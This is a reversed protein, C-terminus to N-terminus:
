WPTYRLGLLSLVHVSAAALGVWAFPRFFDIYQPASPELRTPKMADIRQFVEHLAAPDGATFAAGGTLSAVTYTEHQPQSEAVHVYFLTIDALALDEGIEQAAGGHLDFSSGDSILIIARDGEERSTLVKQVSRLAHGIRTGGMFPPMKEPRLFPAALQLASLDKTLPVWHVVDSGFITLGFADGERYGTFELIAEIAADARNGGGFSATMSGSIDLCFEINTLVRDRSPAGLRQPGALLVIAVALLFAPLLNAMRILEKLFRNSGVQVHDFPLRLPHGRRQWEWVALILPVLLLLLILPHAFTV